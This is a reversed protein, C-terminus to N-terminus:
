DFAEFPTACRVKSPDLHFNISLFNSAQPVFRLRLLNFSSFKSTTHEVIQGGLVFSPVVRTFHNGFCM